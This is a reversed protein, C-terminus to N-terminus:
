PEVGRSSEQLEQHLKRILSHVRVTFREFWYGMVSMVGLLVWVSLRTLTTDLPQRVGGSWRPWVLGLLESLVMLMMLSAFFTAMTFHFTLRRAGVQRSQNAADLLKRDEETFEIM